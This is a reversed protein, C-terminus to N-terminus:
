KQLEKAKTKIIATDFSRGKGEDLSKIGSKIDNHLSRLKINQKVQNKSKLSQSTNM